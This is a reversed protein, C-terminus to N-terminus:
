KLYKQKKSVHEEFTKAYHINGEKDSLYYWYPSKEPFIAAQIADLGPNAIPTPPLGRHIYTNYPSDIKLDDETLEFTNKGIVYVFAADVQLPMKKDFRKWLIGSIIKRDESHAAEKEILSAMTLIQHFSRQSKRIDEELEATRNKLNETMKAVVMQSTTDITFFYTDPFLYGELGIDKIEFNEFGKEQFIRNIDKITSGEPITIKIDSVGYDGKILRNMLSFLSLRKEFLYKGAKINKAGGSYRMLINFLFYSHILNEKEFNEAVEKLTAGKEITIVKNVPFDSPSSIYFLFLLFFLGSLSFVAQLIIKLKNNIM